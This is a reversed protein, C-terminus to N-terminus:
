LLKKVIEAHSNSQRKMGISLCGVPITGIVGIVMLGPNENVYNLSSVSYRQEEGDLVIVWKVEFYPHHLCKEYVVRKFSTVTARDSDGEITITTEKEEPHRTPDEAIQMQISKLTKRNATTENESTM